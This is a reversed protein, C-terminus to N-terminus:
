MVTTAWYSVRVNFSPMLIHKVIAAMLKMPFYEMSVAHAGGLELFDYIRIVNGHTVMRTLKLERIFRKLATDDFSLHPNLIKM